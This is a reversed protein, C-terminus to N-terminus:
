AISVVNLRVMRELFGREAGELAELAGGIDGGFPASQEGHGALRKMQVFLLTM